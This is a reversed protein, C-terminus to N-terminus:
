RVFMQLWWSTGTAPLRQHLQETLVGDAHCVCTADVTNSESLDDDILSALVTYIATNVARTRCGTEHQKVTECLNKVRM